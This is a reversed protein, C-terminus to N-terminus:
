LHLKEPSPLPPLHMHTYVSAYIHVRLGVYQNMMITNGEEREYIDTQQHQREKETGKAGQKKKQTPTGLEIGPKVNASNMAPLGGGSTAAEELGRLVMLIDPLSGLNLLRFWPDKTHSGLRSDKLAWKIYWMGFSSGSKLGLGLSPRPLCLCSGLHPAWVEFGHNKPWMGKHVM